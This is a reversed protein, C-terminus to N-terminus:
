TPYDLELDPTIPNHPRRVETDFFKSIFKNCSADSIDKVVELNFLVEDGIDISANDGLDIVLLSKSKM